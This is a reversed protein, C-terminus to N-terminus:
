KWRRGLERSNASAAVSIENKIPMGAPIMEATRTLLAQSLKPLVTANSPRDIGPKQSPNTIIRINETHSCQNGVLPWPPQCFKIIGENASPQYKAAESSRSVRELM